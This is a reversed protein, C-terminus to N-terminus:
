SAKVVKIEHRFEPIDGLGAMRSVVSWRRREEEGQEITRIFSDRAHGMRLAIDMVAEDRIRELKELAVPDAAPSSTTRM